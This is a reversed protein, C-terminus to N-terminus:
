FKKLNKKEFTTIKTYIKKLGSRHVIRGQKTLNKDM